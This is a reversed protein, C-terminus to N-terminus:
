PADEQKRKMPFLSQTGGDPPAPWWASWEAGASPSVYRGGKRVPLLELNFERLLADRDKETEFNVIVAPIRKQTARTPVHDHEFEIEGSVDALDDASRGLLSGQTVTLEVAPRQPRTARGTTWREEPGDEGDHIYSRPTRGEAEMAERWAELQWRPSPVGFSKNFWDALPKRRKPRGGLAKLAERISDAELVAVNRKERALNMYLQATRQNLGCYTLWPGFQGHRLLQKAEILKEGAIIAEDLMSRAYREVAKHHRRTEDALLELGPERYEGPAQGTGAVASSRSETMLWWGIM